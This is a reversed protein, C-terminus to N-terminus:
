VRNNEKWNNIRLQVVVMWLGLLALCAPSFATYFATLM